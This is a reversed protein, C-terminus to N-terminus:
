RPMLDQALAGSRQQLYLALVLLENQLHEIPNALWPRLTLNEHGEYKESRRLRYGIAQNFKHAHYAQGARSHRM